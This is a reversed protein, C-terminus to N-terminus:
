ACKVLVFIITSATQFGHNRGCCLYVPILHKSVQSCTKCKLSFLQKLIPDAVKDRESTLVWNAKAVLTKLATVNNYSLYVQMKFFVCSFLGDFLAELQLTDLVLM